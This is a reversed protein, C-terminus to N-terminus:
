KGFQLRAALHRGLARRHFHLQCALLRPPQALALRLHLLTWAEGAERSCWLPAPSCRIAPNIVQNGVQHRITPPLAVRARIAARPRAAQSVRWTTAGTRRAKRATLQGYITTMVEGDWQLRMGARSPATRATLRIAQQKIAQSEVGLGEWLEAVM